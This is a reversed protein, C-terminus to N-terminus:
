NKKVIFFAAWLEWIENEKEVKKLITAINIEKQKTREKRFKQLLNKLEYEDHVEIDYGLYKGFENSEKVSSLWDYNYEDERTVTENEFYYVYSKTKFSNNKLLDNLKHLNCEYINGIINNNKNLETIDVYYAFVQENELYFELVNRDYSDEVFIRSERLTNTGCRRTIWIFHKQEDKDSIAAERFIENDLEFDKEQYHKTNINWIQSLVDIVNVNVLKSM